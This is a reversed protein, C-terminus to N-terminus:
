SSGYLIIIWTALGLHCKGKRITEMCSHLNLKRRTLFLIFINLFLSRDKSSSPRWCQPVMMRLKTLYGVQRKEEQEGM